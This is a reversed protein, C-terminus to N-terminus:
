VLCIETKLLVTTKSHYILVTTNTDHVITFQPIEFNYYKLVANGFLGKATAIM